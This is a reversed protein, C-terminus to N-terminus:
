RWARDRRYIGTPRTSEREHAGRCHGGAFSPDPAPTRMRARMYAPRILPTVWRVTIHAASIGSEGNRRPDPSRALSTEGRCGSGADGPQHDAIADADGGYSWSALARRVREAFPSKRPM